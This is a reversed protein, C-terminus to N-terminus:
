NRKTAVPDPRVLRADRYGGKRIRALAALAEGETRYPGVRVRFWLADNVPIKQIVTPLGMGFLEQQAGRANAEGGFSGVQVFWGGAGLTEDVKLAPRPLPAPPPATEAPRPALAEEPKLEPPNEVQPRAGLQRGTRLDYAVVGEGPAPPAPEPLLAAFLLALALLTAAGLLRRLLIEDV